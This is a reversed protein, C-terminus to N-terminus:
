AAEGVKGQDKDHENEHKKEKKGLENLHENEHQKEWNRKNMKIELKM